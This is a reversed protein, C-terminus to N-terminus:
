SGIEARRPCCQTRSLKAKTVKPIFVIVHIYPGYGGLRWRREVDRFGCGRNIHPDDIRIHAGTALALYRRTPHATSSPRSVHHYYCRLGNSGLARRAAWPPHSRRDRRAWISSESISHCGARLRRGRRGNLSASNRM